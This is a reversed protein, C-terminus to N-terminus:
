RRILLQNSRDGYGYGMMTSPAMRRIEQYGATLLAQGAKRVFGGAAIGAYTGVAQGLFSAGQRVGDLLYSGIDGITSQHDNIDFPSPPMPATSIGSQALPMWEWVITVQFIGNPVANGGNTVYTGDVNKAVLCMCGGSYDDDAAAGDTNFNRWTQDFATPLWRIEHPRTGVGASEMMQTTLGAPSVATAAYVFQGTGYGASILGSRSGYAGFPIYKLCAAVPRYRNFNTTAFPTQATNNGILPAGGPLSGGLQYGVSQVLYVSPSVQFIMDLVAPNGPTTTGGLGINPQYNDVTRVLYGQDTGLYPPHCLPAACPDRLLQDYHGMLSTVDPRYTLARPPGRSRQRVVIQQNRQNRKKSAQKRTRTM